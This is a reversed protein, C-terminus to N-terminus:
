LLVPSKEVAATAGSVAEIEEHAALPLRVTVATGESEVSSISLQGGHAVIIHHAIALGLGKGDAKTTAFHHPFDALINPPVIKGGNRICITAWQGPWDVSLAITVTEGSGIAEFSNKLLNFFVQKLRHRDGSILIPAPCGVLVTQRSAAQPLYRALELLEYVFEQLRMSQYQLVPRYDCVSFDKILSALREVEELMMVFRTQMRASPNERACASLGVKIVALSNHVEHALLASIQRPSKFIDRSPTRDCPPLPAASQSPNPTM